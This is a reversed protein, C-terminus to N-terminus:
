PSIVVSENVKKPKGFYAQFVEKAIPAAAVSGFGGNEVVVAIAIEPKDAPGFAVYL